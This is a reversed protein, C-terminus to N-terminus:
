AKGEDKSKPWVLVMKDPSAETNEARTIQVAKRCYRGFHDRLVASLVAMHPAHADALAQAYAMGVVTDVLGLKKFLEDFTEGSFAVKGLAQLFEAETIQPFGPPFEPMDSSTSAVPVGSADLLLPTKPHSM